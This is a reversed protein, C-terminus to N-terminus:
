LKIGYKEPQVIGKIVYLQGDSTTRNEALNIVKKDCPQKDETTLLMVKPKLKQEDNVEVVMGIEGSNMEVTCGVPYAGICQNFANLLTEDFHSDVKKLMLSIADYHTMNDKETKGDCTLTNYVSVITIMRTYPSIQEGILGQPYGSGDLHEHHSYAVEAVIKGLTGPSNLLIDRGLTTHTRKLTKKDEAEQLAQKSIRLFGIDHLLGCLGLTILEDDSLNLYRGFSIALVADNMSQQWTSHHKSKLRMVLQMADPCRLVSEMCAYIAQRAILIDVTGGEKVQTSFESMLETIKTHTQKAFGLEQDYSVTKKPPAITKAAVRHEIIESLHYTKARKIEVVPTSTNGGFLTKFSFGTKEQKTSQALVDDCKNEDVYVYQCEKQLQKILKENEILFGQFLFPADVWDKDLRCVYMGIKLDSVPIQVERVSSSKM